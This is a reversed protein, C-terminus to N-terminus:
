FFCGYTSGGQNWYVPLQPQGAWPGGGSGAAGRGIVRDPSISSATGYTAWNQWTSREDDDCRSLTGAAQATFCNVIQDAIDGCNVFLGGFWGADNDCESTVSSHLTHAAPGVVSNPYYKNSITKGTVLALGWAVFTSCHQGWGISSRDDGLAVARSDQYQYFGYGHRYNVGGEKRAVIYLIGDGEQSYVGVYCPGSSVNGCYPLTNWLWSATAAGDAGGAVYSVAEAGNGRYLAHYTAGMNIQSAGPYGWKIDASDVQDDGIIGVSVGPTKMTAHSVWAYQGTGHSLMQHSYYEGIADMLRSIAGGRGRSAVTSGEPATWGAPASGCADDDGIYARASSGTLTISGFLVTLTALRSGRM